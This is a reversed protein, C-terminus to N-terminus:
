RRRIASASLTMASSFFRCASSRTRQRPVGGEVELEQEAASGDVQFSESLVGRGRVLADCCRGSRGGSREAGAVSVRVVTPQSGLDPETAFLEDPGCAQAEVSSM